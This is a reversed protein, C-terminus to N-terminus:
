AGPFESSRFLPASLPISGKQPFWGPIPGKELFFPPIGGNKKSFHRFPTILAGPSFSKPHRMKAPPIASDTPKSPPIAPRFRGHWRRFEGTAFRTGGGGKCM